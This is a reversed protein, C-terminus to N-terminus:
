LKLRQKYGTFDIKSMGYQSIIESQKRQQEDRQSNIEKWSNVMRIIYNEQYSYRKNEKKPIRKKNVIPLSDLYDTITEGFMLDALKTVENINGEKLLRKFEKLTSKM